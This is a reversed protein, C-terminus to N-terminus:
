ILFAQLSRTQPFLVVIMLKLYVFIYDDATADKDYKKGSAFMEKYSLYDNYKDEDFSFYLFTGTILIASFACALCIKIAPLNKKKEPNPQHMRGFFSFDSVVPNPGYFKELNGVTDTIIELECGFRISIFAATLLLFFSNGTLVRLVIFIVCFINCYLLAAPKKELAIMMVKYYDRYKRDEKAIYVLDAYMLINVALKLLITLLLLWPMIIAYSNM